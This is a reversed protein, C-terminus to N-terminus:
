ALIHKKYFAWQERIGRLVGAVARYSHEFGHRKFDRRLQRFDAYERALQRCKVHTPANIDISMTRPKNKNPTSACGLEGAVALVPDLAAGVTEVPRRTFAAHVGLEAFLWRWEASAM